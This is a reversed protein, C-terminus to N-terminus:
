HGSNEGYASRRYPKIDVKIRQEAPSVAVRPGPYRILDWGAFDRNGGYHPDSFMGELTLRRFRAFVARANPFGAATGSDMATLVADQQNPSLDAFPAGQSTRAFSDMAALGDLFNAKEEALAGVLSQDIYNAAGCEVAGPGLEDKPVLRNLFAELTERQPASLASAPAAPSVSQAASSLAAVPVLAAGAILTRRSVNRSKQDEQDM